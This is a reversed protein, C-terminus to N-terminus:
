TPKTLVGDEAQINVTIKAGTNFFAEDGGGDGIINFESGQWNESLDTIGDGQVNEMGYEDNGVSMYISDGTSAAVGTLAVSALQTVNVNPLEVAYPSNQVCGIGLNEWGANPPCSTFYSDLAVLWDQIFLTGSGSGPPNSYAFQSWGACNKLTGCAASQFFNSNLQLTYSDSGDGSRESTVGKVIPFTGISTSVVNPTTDISFDNGDGVTQGLKPHANKPVPFYKNPAAVCRIANWQTSPYTARFCGAAPLKEAVLAHHWADMTSATRGASNAVAGPASVSSPLSQTSGSCAPLAASLVAIATLRPLNM